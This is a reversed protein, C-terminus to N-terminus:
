PSAELTLPYEYSRPEHVAEYYTDPDEPNYLESAWFLMLLEEEGVNILNHAHLVPIDIYSPKDGSLIFDQVKETGVRRLQVLARGKLISFREVKRRHYHNGREVGPKTTSLFAQGGNHSRVAEFLIGRHDKKLDYM